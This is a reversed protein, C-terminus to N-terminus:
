MSQLFRLRDYKRRRKKRVYVPLNPLLRGLPKIASSFGVKKFHNMCVRCLLHKEKFFHESKYEPDAILVRTDIGTERCSNCTSCDVCFWDGKPIKTLVPNLCEMHFARDCIDCILLKDENKTTNCATCLKCDTCQWEFRM